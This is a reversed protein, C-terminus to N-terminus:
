AVPRHPRAPYGGTKSDSAPPLGVVIRVGDPASMIAAARAGGLPYFFKPVGAGFDVQDLPIRSLNTVLLGSDPHWGRLGFASGPNFWGRARVEEMCRLRDEVFRRDITEVGSQIGMALAGVSSEVVREYPARVIASFTANGFYLPTLEEMLRRADVACTVSVEEGPQNWREVYRKWLWAALVDNRSLRAGVTAQAREVEAKVLAAPLLLEEFAIEERHADFRAAPLVFSQMRLLLREDSLEEGCTGLDLVRRDHNAEPLSVGRNAAAWSMLFLFYGRGDTVGHSISVSLLSGLPLHILCLRALPRDIRCDVPMAFKLMSAFDRLDPMETVESEEFTAAGLPGATDEEIILRNGAELVLRGKLPFFRQLTAALSERLTTFDQREEFYYVITIPHRGEQYFGYDVPALTM